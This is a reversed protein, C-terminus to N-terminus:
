KEQVRKERARVCVHNSKNVITVISGGILNLFARLDKEKEKEEEGRKNNVALFSSVKM